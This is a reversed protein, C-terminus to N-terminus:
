MLHILGIEKSNSSVQFYHGFVFLCFVICPVFEFIDDGVFKLCKYVNLSPLRLGECPTGVLNRNETHLVCLVCVDLYCIKEFRMFGFYTQQSAVFYLVYLQVLIILLTSDKLCFLMFLM